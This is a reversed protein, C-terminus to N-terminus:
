CQNNANASRSHGQLVIMRAHDSIGHLNSNWLRFVTRYMAIITCTFCKDLKLRLQSGSLSSCPSRVSFRNIIYVVKLRLIKVVFNIPIAQVTESIISCQDNEHNLYTHGQIFTLTLIIILGDHMRTDSTTVTGLKIIIVEITESFDSALSLCVCLCVCLCVSLCVCACVCVCCFVCM